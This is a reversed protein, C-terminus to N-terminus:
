KQSTQSVQEIATLTRTRLEPFSPSFYHRTIYIRACPLYVMFPILANITCFCCAQHPLAVSLPKGFVSARRREISLYVVPIITDAIHVSFEGAVALMRTVLFKRIGLKKVVNPAHKHYKGLSCRKCERQRLDHFAM